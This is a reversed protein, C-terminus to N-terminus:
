TNAKRTLCLNENKGGSDDSSGSGDESDSDDENEEEDDEDNGCESGDDSGGQPGQKDLLRQEKHQKMEDAAKKIEGITLLKESPKTIIGAQSAKYVDDVQTEWLATASDASNQQNVTQAGVEAQRRMIGSEGEMWHEWKVVVFKEKNGSTGIEEAITQNTQKPDSLTLDRFKEFTM